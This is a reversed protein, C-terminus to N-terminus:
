DVPPDPPHGNQSGRRLRMLEQELQSREATRQRRLRGVYARTAAADALALVVVWALLLAVGCWFFVFLSPWVHPPILQGVILALGALALMASTQVRRLFRRRYYRREDGAAFQGQNRRWSRVHSIMLGLGLAIVAGPFLVLTVLNSPSAAARPLANTITLLM